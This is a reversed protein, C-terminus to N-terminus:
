GAGYDTDGLSCDHRVGSVEGANIRKNRDGM